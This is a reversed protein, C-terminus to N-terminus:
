KFVVPGTNMSVTGLKDIEPRKESHSASFRSAREVKLSGDPNVTVVAIVTHYSFTGGKNLDVTVVTGEGDDIVAHAGMSKFSGIGNGVESYAMVAAAVITPDLNFRFTAYERIDKGGRVRDGHHIVAGSADSLRRWDLYERSGDKRAIQIILGLDKHPKTWYLSFEMAKTKAINVKAGDKDLKIKGKSLNISSSPAPPAVLPAPASVVEPEPDDDVDVGYQRVLKAPGSDSGQAIARFKWAGNHRYLEGFILSAETTADNEGLNYRALENGSSDTLRIAANDLDGFKQGRLRGEHINVIFVIKVIASPVKALNVTVSEDDEDESGGAQNDDSVAVSGCPSVPNNFFVFHEDSPVKGNQDLLFTWADLDFDASPAEWSLGVTLESVDPLVVNAGKTLSDTVAIM